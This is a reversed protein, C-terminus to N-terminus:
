IHVEIAAGVRGVISIPHSVIVNCVASLSEWPTTCNMELENMCIAYVLNTFVQKGM